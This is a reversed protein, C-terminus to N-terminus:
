TESEDVQMNGSDEVGLFTDSSDNTAVVFNSGMGVDPQNEQRPEKVERTESELVVPFKDTQRRREPRIIKITTPDANATEVTSKPLEVDQIPSPVPMAASSQMTSTPVSSVAPKKLSQPPLQKTSHARRRPSAAARVNPVVTAPLMSYDFVVKIARSQPKDAATKIANRYDNLAFRHTILKEPYLKGQGIMEAAIAFTSNREKTGIPWTELGHGFTGLLSVEQYWIPSLDVNMMHLSTGVLVVTGGARAWRLADHVTGQNGITDYIVDYGGLLMKNGRVGKYLKAGTKLEVEQYTDQPYLIHTAGMRIAQEVQFAHRAMVSITTEPVLARLVQLTLLGITGAGIILVHEGAKPIHRLVAHVAVSAPELLVAQEDSMEPSIRFLQQEHMLMEESWGGGITQPDPLARQECLNYNGSACSSCLPQMGLTICNPGSQLVVREGVHLQQVDEGVEIVEGVVEHGPYSLQHGPVAAPAIRFDGDLYVMHLDSGCIGALRNRVRVWNGEPLTQRPLNQVQLPAFSSFYAESWFHALLRTALVRRRTLEFISTWM